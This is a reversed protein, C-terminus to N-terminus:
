ERRLADIPDLRAARLAPVLAAVLGVLAVFSAVAAYVRSDTPRIGFVFSRFGNATIWAAALGMATGLVVRRLARALVSRMIRSRSAGLALRLGIDRGQRTVLFAMTGYVGIVGLAVAIFGLTAMVGANFRPGATLRRFFDDVLQAQGPEVGGLAPRIADRVVAAVERTNRSTRVVLSGSDTLGRAREQDAPTYMEPPVDVEAGGVHVGRLVGIITTAGRFTVVQGVPDRDPFFRRAAVDNILMVLPAGARDGSDFPRGRVLRMGMVRFYDPTVMRTELMDDYRTEGVGPIILSYRVSSGSLPVSGNTSIAADIVGPVSKARALLDARLTAAAIPRAAEPGDMLPREYGITIVNQRDFGLDATTVLIFSRVVLTTAVLLICVVAVEAVLFASLSRDVRRGGILPGGSAKMVGILDSRAALWAPASAFGVGCLVAVAISVSLVRGDVAITSVRTLLGPPMNSRAVEVGWVSAVIAAAGASLALILGELLLSAALRRRSAGLAERIAFEQARTAARVLLLTAVNVCAILLVFGVAALVLFLWDKASGVVQDHLPLVVIPVTSVRTVDARAQAVTVGPRLRGVVSLSRGRGNSREAATAIYPVYLDSPSQEMPYWVRAPLVGVVEFSDQGFDVTRGIVGTDSRFRRVWLEHSLIVAGPGGVRADAPGFLRGAAPRVGLVDFLNATVRKGILAESGGNGELRFLGAPRSAALSTFAQTGDLLSFYDQPAVPSLTGTKVGPVSIGVLQEPSAYPLARLAVADVVSFTVTGAAMALTLILFALVTTRDLRVLMPREHSMAVM